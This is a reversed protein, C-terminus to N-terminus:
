DIHPYHSVCTINSSIIDSICLGVVTPRVNYSEDNISVLRSGTSAVTFLLNNIMYAILLSLILTYSSHCNMGLMENLIETDIFKYFSYLCSFLLYFYYLQFVLIYGFLLMTYVYVLSVNVIFLCLSCHLLVRSHVAVLCLSSILYVFHAYM